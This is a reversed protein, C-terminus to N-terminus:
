AKCSSRSYLLVPSARSSELGSLKARTDKCAALQDCLTRRLFVGDVRAVDKIRAAHTPTAMLLVSVVLIFKLFPKM